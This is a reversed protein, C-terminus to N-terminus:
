VIEQKSIQERLKRVGRELLMELMELIGETISTLVQLHLSRAIHTM